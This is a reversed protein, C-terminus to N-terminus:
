LVVGFLSLAAKAAQMEADKKNGATGTGVLNNNVFAGVTFLKEHEPGKEEIVRYELIASGDQEALQQLRTKYDTNSQSAILEFEKKYLDYVLRRCEGSLSGSDIYVAGILAELADALVKPRSRCDTLEEGRGVNLYEGLKLEAAIKALTKECVLNQRMKTLAGERYKKFESFLYESVLLELVADGLFELRENSSLNIGRTRQENTYSSHTLALELNSIDSFKYAIKEELESIERGIAM